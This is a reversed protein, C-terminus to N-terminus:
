KRPPGSLGPRFAKKDLFQDIDGLDPLGYNGRRRAGIQAVKASLYDYSGAVDMNNVMRVAQKTARLAEPDKELLIRALALTEDRLRARPVAKNILGKEAADAGTMPLGTCCMWMADRYGLAERLAKTVLGGPLAGFNIESAGIKADDAAIAFDCAVLQTLGGGFCHGNVMAITPKDFMYLRQWRWRDGIESARKFERPNDKLERFFLDLDRGACFADGAGTLVVVGTDPDCELDGLIEDMETDMEPSMANRKEPRNMIVWTIRDQKEVIVNKYTRKSVISQM